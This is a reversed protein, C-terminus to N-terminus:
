CRLDHSGSGAGGIVQAFLVSASPGASRPACSWNVDDGKRGLTGCVDGVAIYAARGAWKKKVLLVGYGASFGDGDGGSESPVPWSWRGPNCVKFCYLVIVAGCLYIFAIPRTM